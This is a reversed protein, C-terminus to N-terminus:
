ELTLINHMGNNDAYMFTWCPVVASPPPAYLKGVTTGDKDLGLLPNATGTNDITVGLTPTAEIFVLVGNMNLVKVAAIAAQVQLKIDKFLLVDPNPNAGVGPEASGGAGSSQVFTVTTVAPVTFKLTKGVLGFIGQGLNASTGGFESGKVPGAVIGGNLFTEVEFTQSFKRHKNVAM